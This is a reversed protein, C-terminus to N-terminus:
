KSYFFIDNLNSHFNELDIISIIEFDFKYNNIDFEFNNTDNFIIMVNKNDLHFINYIKKKMKIKKIKNKTYNNIIIEQEQFSIIKNNILFKPEHYYRTYFDEIINFDNLIIEKEKTDNILNWNLDFIILNNNEDLIGIKENNLQIVSNIKTIHPIILSMFNYEDIIDNKITFYLKNDNERSFIIINNILIMEEIIGSKCKITIFHDKKHIIIDSDNTLNHALAIVNKKTEYYMHHSIFNDVYRTEIHTECLVFDYKQNNTIQFIHTELQDEDSSVFVINSDYHKYM